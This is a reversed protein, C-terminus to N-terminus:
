NFIKQWLNSLWNSNEEETIESTPSETYDQKPLTVYVKQDNSLKQMGLLEEASEEINSLNVSSEIDVELQENTKQLAALEAKKDQIESFRETILSNRYSVALLLLFMGLIIAINKHHMRKEQKLRRNKEEELKKNNEKIKKHKRPAYEPQIKRPSTEYQYKTRAM